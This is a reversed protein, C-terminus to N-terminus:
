STPRPSPFSKVRGQRGPGWFLRSVRTYMTKTLGGLCLCALSGGGSWGALVVREYGLVRKCHKLVSGVDKVAKEMLLQSQM